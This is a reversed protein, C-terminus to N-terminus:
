EREVRNTEGCDRCTAIEEDWDVVGHCEHPCRWFRIKGGRDSHQDIAEWFSGITDETKEM